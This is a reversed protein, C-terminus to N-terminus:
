YELDHTTLRGVEVPFSPQIRGPTGDVEFEPDSGGPRYFRRFDAEEGPDSVDVHEIDNIEIDSFYYVFEGDKSSETTRAHGSVTVTAGGVHTTGDLVTGRVLTLGGPFAYAATPSLTLELPDGSNFERDVPDWQATTSTDHYLDGGDINVTVDAEPLDFFLYYGSRNRIPREDAEAVSVQQEGVPRDGTIEDILRVPLALDRTLEDVKRWGKRMRIVMLCPKM